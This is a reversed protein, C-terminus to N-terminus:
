LAGNILNILIKQYNWKIMLPEKLSLTQLTEMPNNFVRQITVKMRILLLTSLSFPKSIKALKQLNKQLLMKRSCSYFSSTTRTTSRTILAINQFRLLIIKLLITGINHIAHSWWLIIMKTKIPILISNRFSLCLNSIKLFRKSFLTFILEKTLHLSVEKHSCLLQILLLIRNQSSWRRKRHEKLASPKFNRWKRTSM